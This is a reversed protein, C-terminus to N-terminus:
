DRQKKSEEKAATSCRPHTRAHVGSLDRIAVHTYIETAELKAHGLLEQVYRIDAGARLMHTACAHRLQHPTLRRDFGAARATERVLLWIAQKSLRSGTTTTIFLATVGLKRLLRPRANQIYDLLADTATEGIPVVRARGGKGCRILVTGTTLDLDSLDLSALEARRMGTSYFMELIARNRKGAATHADPAALMRLVESESPVHVPLAPPLPKGAIESAPSALLVRKECLWEFFAAIIALRQAKTRATLPRWPAAHQRRYRHAQLEGVYGGITERTVSRIDGVGQELLWCVFHNLYLRRYTITGQSLGRARCADIYRDLLEDLPAM